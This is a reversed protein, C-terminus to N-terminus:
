LDNTQSPQSEFERGEARSAHARGILGGRGTVVSEAPGVRDLLM